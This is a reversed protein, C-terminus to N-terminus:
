DFPNYWKRKDDTETIKQDLRKVENDMKLDSYIRRAMNYLSIAKKYKKANAQEDGQKEYNQGDEYRKCFEECEQLRTQLTMLEKTDGMEEYVSKAMM